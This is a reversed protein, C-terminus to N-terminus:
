QDRHEMQRGKATDEYRLTIPDIPTGKSHITMKAGLNHLHLSNSQRDKMKQYNGDELQKVHLDRELSQMRRRNRNNDKKQNKIDRDQKDTSAYDRKFRELASYPM